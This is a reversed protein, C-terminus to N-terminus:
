EAILKSRKVCEFDDGKLLLLEDVRVKNRSEKGIFAIYSDGSSLREMALKSLTPVFELTTFKKGDCTELSEGDWYGQLLSQGSRSREKVSAVVDHAEAKLQELQDRQLPLIKRNVRYQQYVAEGDKNFRIHIQFPLVGHKADIQDGKRILERLQGEAWRYDSQYWGYEGVTVYDAATIVRNVRETSWYLSSSDGETKGGTFHTVQELNPAEVSSCGILTLSCLLFSTLLQKKM